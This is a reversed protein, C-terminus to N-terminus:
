LEVTKTVGLDKIFDEDHSVVLLTGQYSAMTQALLDVGAIDLNNTPEDLVILDPQQNAIMMCCLSLRMREGGSLQHCQKAWSSADFLARHLRLRVEHEPLHRLNYAQAQELVSLDAQLMSYDQDMFHVTFDNAHREGRDATLRGLLLRILSSKGCGNNGKIRVRDGSRLELNVDQQWLWGGALHINVAKLDVLQKGRHLSSDEVDIKTTNEAMRRSKLLSMQQQAEAIKDNQRQALQAASQQAGSEKANMLIRAQGGKQQNRSGAAMRREQREHTEAAKRKLMKIAAEQHEIQQAIAAAEAEKQSKYFDYNGGYVKTQGNELEVTTDMLRLLARDHSVVVVSKRTNKVWQYLLARGSGDLHNTPEDLLLTSAPTLCMAALMVRTKEGGSLSSFLDSPRLKEMGWFALARTCEEEIEWRDSLTEYYEQSDSGNLIAHLAKLQPAVGLAQGVTEYTANVLQPLYFPTEDVAITGSDPTILGAIINLLTSKGSGNLGVIATKKGSEITLHLNHFLTDQSPFCLRLDNVIISM